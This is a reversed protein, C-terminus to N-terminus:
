EDSFSFFSSVVFCRIRGGWWREYRENILALLMAESAAAAEEEEEEEEEEEAKEKKKWGLRVSVDFHEEKRRQLKESWLRPPFTLLQM